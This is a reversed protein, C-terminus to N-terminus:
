RRTLEGQKEAQARGPSLLSCFGCADYLQVYNLAGRCAGGLFHSNEDLFPQRVVQGTPSAFSRAM